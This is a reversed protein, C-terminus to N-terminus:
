LKHYYKETEEIRGEEPAYTGVITMNGQPIRLKV